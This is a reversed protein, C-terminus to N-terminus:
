HSKIVWTLSVRIDWKYASSKSPQMCLGSFDLPTPCGIEPHQWMVAECAGGLGAGDCPVGRQPLKISFADSLGYGCVCM